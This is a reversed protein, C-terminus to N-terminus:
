SSRDHNYVQVLIWNNIQVWMLNKNEETKRDRDIGKIDM